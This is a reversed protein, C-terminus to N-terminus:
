YREFVDTEVNYLYASLGDFSIAFRRMVSDPDAASAVSIDYFRESGIMIVDNLQAELDLATDGLIGYTLNIAYTKADELTLEDESPEPLTQQGTTYATDGSLDIGFLPQGGAVRFFVTKDRGYNQQITMLLSNLLGRLAEESACTKLASQEGFTVHADSVGVEASTLDWSVGLQTGLAELIAAPTTDGEYGYYVTSPTGSRDDVLVATYSQIGDPEASTDAPDKHAGCATCTLLLLAAMWALFLRKYM